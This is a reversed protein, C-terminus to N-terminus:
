RRSLDYGGSWVSMGEDCEQMPIYLGLEWLGEFQDPNTLYNERLFESVRHTRYERAEEERGRDEYMKSVPLFLAGALGILSISGIVTIDRLRRKTKQKM